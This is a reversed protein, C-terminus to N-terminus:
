NISYIKQVVLLDEAFFEMSTETMIHKRCSVTRVNYKLPRKKHMLFTKRRFIKINEEINLANKKSISSQVLTVVQHKGQNSMDKRRLAAKLYKVKGAFHRV